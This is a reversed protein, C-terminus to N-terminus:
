TPQNLHSDHLKKPFTNTSLKMWPRQWDIPSASHILPRAAAAAIFLLDYEAVGM